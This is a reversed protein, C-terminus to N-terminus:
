GQLPIAVHVTCSPQHGHHGGAWAPARESCGVAAGGEQPSGGAAPLRPETGRRVGRCGAEEETAVRVEARGGSRGVHQSRGDSCLVWPRGGGDRTGEGARGECFVGLM